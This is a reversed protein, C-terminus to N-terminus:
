MYIGRKGLEYYNAFSQILFQLDTCIFRSRYLVVHITLAGWKVCVSKFCKSIAAIFDTVFHQRTFLSSNVVVRLRLEPFTINKCTNTRGHPNHATEKVVCAGLGRMCGLGCM